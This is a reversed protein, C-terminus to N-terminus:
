AAVWERWRHCAILRGDSMEEPVPVRAACLAAAHPCRARFACGTLASEAAAPDPEPVPVAVAAAGSAAAPDCDAVADLLARTYPHAPAHWLRQTSGLEALRGAHLVLVRECLSRVANLDHSVFLLAVGRERKLRGLLALVQAQVTLDLASVPEDCVLVRPELMMARAIAVRQAQGGSLEHPFREALAPELGVARLMDQGAAAREAASKGPAHVELPEALIQAVTMRPDLSGISDQFIVQVDRRAARLQAATLRAVERGLWLVRGSSPALLQLVARVLTTKGCGSEGVVGLAEGARLELSVPGLARLRRRRLTGRRQEYEVSLDEVALAHPARTREGPTEVSRVARARAAAVLARTCPHEPHAFLDPTPKLEVVEGAHMVAIRDALRAAVALDHTILVLGMRRARRVQHLLGIVHSQLTVDLATTPEDAILVQPECALAAALAVRQRMGGSLEHPYQGLRRGPEAIQVRELLAHARERAARRSLRLHCRLPEAILAGVTHHPTLAGAPDQPVLAIRLGRIRDLAARAAPLLAMGELSAAGTVRAAPGLLGLVALFLQSKGAGSEGVVALCEGGAIQLSVDRVVCAAGGAAPYEVRLREIRLVAARAGAATDGEPHAPISPM